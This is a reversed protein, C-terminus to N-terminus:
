GAAKRSCIMANGRAPRLGFSSAFSNSRDSRVMRFLNNRSTASGALSRLQQGRLLPGLQLPETTLIPLELNLTVDQSFRRGPERPLRPRDRELRRTRSRSDPRLEPPSSTNRAQHTLSRTSRRASARGKAVLAARHRRSRPRERVWSRDSLEYPAVRMRSSRRSAPWRTPCFRMAWRMRSSPKCPTEFRRPGARGRRSVRSAGGSGSKTLRAKRVVAGFWSLTAFM